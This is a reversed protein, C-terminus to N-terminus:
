IVNGRRFVPLGISFMGLPLLLLATIGFAMLILIATPLAAILFIGAIVKILGWSLRLGTRITAMILWTTIILILTMM